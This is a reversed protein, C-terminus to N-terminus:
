KGNAQLYANIQSFHRCTSFGKYASQTSPHSSTLVLHRENDFLRWKKQADAGSLVFVLGNKINNLYALVADTFQEWGQGKHSEAFGGRVTLVSNLM